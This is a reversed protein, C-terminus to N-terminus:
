SSSRSMWFRWILSLLLTCAMQAGVVAMFGFMFTLLVLQRDPEPVQASSAALGVILDHVPPLALLLAVLGAGTLWGWQSSFRAASRHWEDLERDKLVALAFSAAVTLTAAIGAFIYVLVDPQQRLWPIAAIFSIPSVVALTAILAQIRTWSQRHSSM